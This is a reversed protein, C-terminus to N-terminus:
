SQKDKWRKYVVKNTIVFNKILEYGVSIFFAYKIISISFAFGIILNVLSLGIVTVFFVGITELAKEAFSKMRDM